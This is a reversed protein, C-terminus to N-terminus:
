SLFLPKTDGNELVIRKDYKLTNEKKWKRKALFIDYVEKERLRVYQKVSLYKEYEIERIKESFEELSKIESLIDKPVGKAKSIPKNDDTLAFYVKPSFAKFLRFKYELKMKGLETSNQFVPKDVILSDTDCYFIKAGQDIAQKMYEWLVIRASASIYSAIHFLQFPRILSRKKKRIYCYEDDIEIVENQIMEDVTIESYKKLEIDDKELKQAYKGYQSNLILKIIKQFDNKEKKLRKRFSYLEKSFKEFLVESQLAYFVEYVELIEGQKEKLFKRLELFTFVGTFVGAPFILKGNHKIGLIPPYETEKVRVKVKAFGEYREMLSILQKVSINKLHSFHRIPIKTFSMAFPYLSNIDYYYLNEGTKLSFVETRGGKYSEQVFHILDERNRYEDGVKLLYPNPISHKLYRTRFLKQSYQSITMCNLINVKYLKYLERNVKKLIHYLSIVDYECRKKLEEVSAKSFDVVVKKKLGLAELLKNQALPLLAFSDRVNLYDYRLRGKKDRRAGKVIKISLILSNRFVVKAPIKHKACYSLIFRGDFSLNHFYIIRNKSFSLLKQMFDNLHMFTYINKGDYISGLRFQLGDSSTEIDATIIRKYNFEKKEPKLAEFQFRSRKRVQPM